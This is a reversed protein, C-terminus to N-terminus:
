PVGLVRHVQPILRVQDHINSAALLAAMQQRYSPAGVGGLPTCPQLVIMADSRASHIASVAETIEELPSSEAFVLKAWAARGGSERLIEMHAKPNAPEGTASELKWDLSLIDIADRVERFAGPLMGDTELLTPVSFARIAPALGTIMWPHLLPEGGTFSVARHPAARLAAAVLGKLDFLSVPNEREIVDRTLPAKEQTWTPRPEHCKPTDCYICHLDCHSFRVFLHVEGVLPGEGQVSSFVEVLDASGAARLSELRAADMVM